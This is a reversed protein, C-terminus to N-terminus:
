TRTGYGGPMSDLRAIWGRVRPHDDGLPQYDRMAVEPFADDEPKLGAARGVFPYAAVDAASLSGFLFESGELLAELRELGASMVAAHRGIAAADPASAALEDLLGNLATKWAGEFWAVFAEVAAGDRPILPPDPFHRDLHGVITMSGAVVVGDHDLVPVRDQGSIERVLSRDALDIWVRECALGKHALALAVREVNPSFDCGYLIM